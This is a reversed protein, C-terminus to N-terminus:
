GYLKPRNEQWIFQQPVQKSEKILTKSALANLQAKTYGLTRLEAWSIGQHKAILQYLAFQKPAKTEIKTLQTKQETNVIEIGCWVMPPQLDIKKVQRLLKPLAQQFVDGMPHHYYSACAKLFHLMQEDLNFSHQMRSLVNKLKNAPIECENTIKTVIGVVQRSGFPVVIREGLAIEPSQLKVPLFYTFLQRMPVPIAVEVYINADEITM